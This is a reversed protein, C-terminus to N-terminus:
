ARRNGSVLQLDKDEPYQEDYAAKAADETLHETDDYQVVKGRYFMKVQAM